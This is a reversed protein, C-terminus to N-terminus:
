HQIVKKSVTKGDDYTINVIYVAPKNILKLDFDQLTSVNEHTAINQGNINYIKILASTDNREFRVYKRNSKDYVFTDTNKVEIEDVILEKPVENWYFVYRDAINPTKTFTIETDADIETAKKTMKDYLYFIGNEFNNVPNLISFQHLKFKLSYTEGDVLDRFGLGLPKGVFNNNFRNFDTQFNTLVKGDVHEEYLFIRNAEENNSEVENNNYFSANALFVGPDVLKNNNILYISLQNFDNPAVLGKTKLESNNLLRNKANISNIGRSYIGASADGTNGLDDKFTKQNEGLDVKLDILNGNNNQTNIAYFQIEYYEFPRVLLAESEGAWFYTGSSGSPELFASIRKNNGDVFNQSGNSQKWVIKFSSPLKNIKFRAKFNFVETPGENNIKLWTSSKNMDTLDLNSTFPNSFRFINKGFIRSNDSGNIGLGLYSNYTENYDNVLGKWDKWQLDGFETANKNIIGSKLVPPSFGVTPTGTLQIIPYNTGTDPIAKLFELFSNTGSLNQLNVLYDFGPKNFENQPIADYVTQGINWVLATQQYRNITSDTFQVNKGTVNPNSINNFITSTPQDKFPIGFNVYNGSGDINPINREVTVKGDTETEQGNIILQGYYLDENSKPAIYKNVFNKGTTNDNKFDGVIHINGENIIKETIDAKNDSEVSLSGGHYFLTNKNVKVIVNDNIYTDQSYASIGFVLMALSLLNKKM